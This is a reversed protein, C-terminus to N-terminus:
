LDGCRLCAYKNSIYILLVRPRSLFFNYQEEASLINVAKNTILRLCFCEEYSDIDLMILESIFSQSIYRFTFYM